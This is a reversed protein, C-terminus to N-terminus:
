TLNGMYREDVDFDLELLKVEEESFLEQIDELVVTSALLMWYNEMGGPLHQQLSECREKITDVLIWVKKLTSDM